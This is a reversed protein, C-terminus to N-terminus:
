ESCDAYSSIDDVALLAKMFNESLPRAIAALMSPASQSSQM